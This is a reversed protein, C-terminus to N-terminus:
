RGGLFGRMAKVKRARAMEEYDRKATHNNGRQVETMYQRDATQPDTAMTVNYTNTNKINPPAMPPPAAMPMGNSISAGGPVSVNMGERPGPKVANPDRMMRKLPDRERPEPNRINMHSAFIPDDFIGPPTPEGMTGMPTMGSRMGVGSMGGMQPPPSTFSQPPGQPPPAMSGDEFVRWGQAIMADLEEPSYGYAELSANGPGQTAGIPPLSFAGSPPTFGTARITNAYPDNPM